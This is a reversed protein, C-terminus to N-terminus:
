VYLHSFIKIKIIYNYLSCYYTKLYIFLLYIINIVKVDIYFPIKM